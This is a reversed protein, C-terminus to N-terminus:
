ASVCGVHELGGFSPEVWGVECLTVSTQPLRRCRASVVLVTVLVDSLILASMCALGVAQLRQSFAFVVCADRQLCCSRWHSIARALSRIYM